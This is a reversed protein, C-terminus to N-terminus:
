APRSRSPPLLLEGLKHRRSPTPLSNGTFAGTNRFPASVTTNGHARRRIGCGASAIDDVVVV